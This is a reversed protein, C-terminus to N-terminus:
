NAPRRDLSVTTNIWCNVKMEAGVEYGKEFLETMSPFQNKARAMAEADGAKQYMDYAAIFVARDKVMDQKTACDDFSTMYLDGIFKYAESKLTPDAAMAQNALDRGTSKMGQGAKIRALKLYIDGKKVNEDTLTLAQEFYKIATTQDGDQSARAAIFIKIGYSPEADDIMRAAKLALPDDTCKGTLMLKFIKKALNLDPAAELKPGFDNIVISCDINPVLDLLMKDIFDKISDPVTSGNKDKYEVVDSIKFYRDFIQEDTLTNGVAKYRRLVDMYAALNNTFLENKNLEYARDFLDLLEQYRKPNDKLLKYAVYAKRNLVDPEDNFYQIRLDYMQLTKDELEKKKAPDAETNALTEFIKAGNIYISKNLDPTNQLLWDLHTAAEVYNDAKFADTYLANKEKAKDPDSGWCWGDECQAQAWQVSIMVAMFVAVKMAKM